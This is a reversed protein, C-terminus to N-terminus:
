QRVGRKNRAGLVFKENEDYYWLVGEGRKYLLEYLPLFTVALRGCRLSGVIILM